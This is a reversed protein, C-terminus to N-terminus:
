PGITAREINAICKQTMCCLLHHSKGPLVKALLEADRKLLAYIAETMQGAVRGIVRKKGLFLIHKMTRTGGRTLQAHNLTSGSQTVVPAWGFYSKLASASPFNHISGIAAIITAAGPLFQGM